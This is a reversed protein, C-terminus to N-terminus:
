QEGEYWWVHGAHHSQKGTITRKICNSSFGNAEAEALGPLYGAGRNRPERWDPDQAWRSSDRRAKADQLCDVGSAEHQARSGQRDQLNAAAPPENIPDDRQSIFHENRGGSAQLTLHLLRGEM